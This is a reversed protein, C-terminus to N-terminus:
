LLRAKRLMVVLAVTIVTSLAWFFRYGHTWALEPIFEFNMGYVGCLFTLPLFITSVVALRNMVRNTRHTTVTISFNMASELVDLNSTIDSLLRELIAIMGSMFGLTAESVLSSKRSVLEELVRRAPMVQKRLAILKGTVGALELLTEECADTLLKQRMVEVDEELRSQTRLYQDVQGKLIEYILFSPTSAHALFDRLYTRRVERLVASTGQRFTVLFGSGILLQLPQTTLGRPGEVVGRLSILLLQENQLMRLQSVAGSTAQEAICALDFGPLMEAPLIDAIPQPSTQSCDIDIWVFRGAAVQDAVAELAVPGYARDGGRFDLFEAQIGAQATDETTLQPQGAQTEKASPNAWLTSPSSM